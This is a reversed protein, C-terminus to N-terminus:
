ERMIYTRVRSFLLSSLWACITGLLAGAIIDSLFHVCLYVRSFGIIAAPILFIWGRKMRLLAIAAAFSSATHGSPFSHGHPARIFLELQFVEFPRPREVLNKLLLNCFVASLVLAGGTVLGM